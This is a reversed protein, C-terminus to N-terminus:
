VEWYSKRELIDENDVISNLEHDEMYTNVYVLIFRISKINLEM